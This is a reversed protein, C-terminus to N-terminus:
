FLQMSCIHMQDSADGNLRSHVSRRIFPLEQVAAALARFVWCRPLPSLFFYFPSHINTQPLLLAIRVLDPSPTSIDCKIEKGMRCGKRDSCEEDALAPSPLGSHPVCARVHKRSAPSVWWDLHGGAVTHWPIMKATVKVSQHWLGGMRELRAMILKLARSKISVHESTHINSCQTLRKLENIQKPSRVPCYTM